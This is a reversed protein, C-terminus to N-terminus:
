SQKGQQVYDELVDKTGYYTRSYLRPNESGGLNSRMAGSLLADVLRPV